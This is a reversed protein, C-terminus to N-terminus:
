NSNNSKSKDKLINQSDEEENSEGEVGDKNDQSEPNSNSDHENKSEEEPDNNATKYSSNKNNASKASENGKSKENVVNMIQYKEDVKLIIFLSSVVSSESSSANITNDININLNKSNKFELKFHIGFLDRYSTLRSSREDDSKLAQPSLVVRRINRDSRDGNESHAVSISSDYDFYKNLEKVEYRNIDSINRKTKNDRLQKKKVYETYSEEFYSSAQESQFHYNCRQAAEHNSSENSEGHVPDLKGEEPKFRVHIDNTNLESGDLQFPGDEFQYKRGKDAFPNKKQNKVNKIQRSQAFSQILANINTDELELETKRNAALIKKVQRSSM